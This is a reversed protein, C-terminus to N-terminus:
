YVILTFPDLHNVICIRLIEPLKFRISWWTPGLLCICGYWGGLSGVGGGCGTDGGGALCAASGGAM